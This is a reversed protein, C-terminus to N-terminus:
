KLDRAAAEAAAPPLSGALVYAVGNKQWELVTGLQTALEHASTGDLSVTPVGSMVGGGTAGDAKREVVVIAGLGHGYVVLAADKGALGVHQRPLGVLTDPAAVTFGVANQVGDVTTPQPTSDTTGAADKASGASGLDVVKAGTPPAVDVASPDVAGYSINTAELALVPASSGQAYVAVRLPIGRAADFALEASGLLGGDHKPSLSVTYAPQGAVNDPQASSITAQQSADTLMKTIASLAPPADTATSDAPTSAPLAFKYVTNSSADFVTVQDKNWVVQADGADSQLELRGRGDNTAWLRGHAGAILASAAAGTLAGSPFLNNTFTIEATIGQPETGTIADHIAQDLPKAPPTPGSGGSAAVAIAATGGAVVVLAVLLGILRATSLTRLFRM